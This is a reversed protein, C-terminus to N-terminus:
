DADPTSSNQKWVPFFYNNGNLGIKVFTHPHLMGAWYDPYPPDDDAYPTSTTTYNVLDINDYYDLRMKTWGGIKFEHRTPTNSKIRTNYTMNGGNSAVELGYHENDWSPLATSTQVGFVLQDLDYINYTNMVLCGKMSISPDTNPITYLGSGDPDTIQANGEGTIEAIIKVSHSGESGIEMVSQATDANNGQFKVPSNTGGRFIHDGTWTVDDSASIGGGGSADVYAKNAADTSSTPTAVDEIKNGDMDIKEKFEWKNLGGDYKLVETTNEFWKFDKGSKTYFNLSENSGSDTADISYSDKEHAPTTSSDGVSFYLSDLDYINWTNMDLNADWFITDDINDQSNDGWNTNVPITSGKVKATIYLNDQSYNNGINVHTQFTHVGTWFTTDGLKVFHSEGTSTLNSLDTDAGSGGGSGSKVLLYKGTGEYGSGGNTVTVATVKGGSVTATATASSGSGGAIAVTPASTYGSGGKQMIVKSIAGDVVHVIAEAGKGSGGSFNVVTSADEWYQLMAFETDAITLNSSIDINGGTTLTLTTTERPKVTVIQGNNTTGFITKITASSNDARKVIASSSVVPLQNEANSNHIYTASWGGKAACTFTQGSTNPFVVNVPNSPQFLAQKKREDGYSGNQMQNGSTEGTGVQVSENTIALLIGKWATGSVTIEDGSVLMQTNNTSETYQILISEVVESPAIALTNTIAPAQPAGGGMGFGSMDSLNTTAPSFRVIDKLEDLQQKIDYKDKRKSPPTLGSVM